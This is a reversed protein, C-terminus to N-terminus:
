VTTAEEEDNDEDDGMWDDSELGEGRVFISGIWGFLALGGFLCWALAEGKPKINISLTFLGGSVFPGFSRGL